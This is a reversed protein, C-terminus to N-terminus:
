SAIEVRRSYATEILGHEIQIIGQMKTRYNTDIKCLNQHGNKMSEMCKMSKM